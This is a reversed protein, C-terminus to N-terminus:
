RLYVFRRLERIYEWPRKGAYTKREYRKRAEREFQIFKKTQSDLLDAYCLANAESFCPELFAGWDAERHHSLIIHYLKLKLETPFESSLQQLKNNLLEIGLYLHGLLGEESTIGIQPYFQYGRIKGIDHLIAGAILLNRDLEPYLDAILSVLRTVNLTHEILGGIYNHHHKLSAPSQKFKSALEADKIVLGVLARLNPETLSEAYIILERYMAEIDKATTPIYDALEFETEPLRRVNGKVLTLQLEENYMSVGARVKIVDGVDFLSSLDQIHHWSRGVITGTKDGLLVWLYKDGGSGSSRERIEKELVMFSTEIITGVRLESVWQSSKRYM